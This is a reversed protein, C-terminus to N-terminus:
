VTRRPPERVHKGDHPRSQDRRGPMPNSGAELAVDEVAGPDQGAAAQRGHELVDGRGDREVAGVQTCMAVTVLQTGEVVGADEQHGGGEDPRARRGHM